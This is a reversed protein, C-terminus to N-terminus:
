AKEQYSIQSFWLLFVNTQMFAFCINNLLFPFFGFLVTPNSNGFSICSSKYSIGNSVSYNPRNVIYHVFWIWKHLYKVKYYCSTPKYDKNFHCKTLINWTWVQSFPVFCSSGDQHKYTVKTKVFCAGYIWTYNLMRFLGSVDFSLIWVIVYHINFPYLTLCAVNVLWGSRFVAAHTVVANFLKVMMADPDVLTHTGFVVPPEQQEQKKMDKYAQITSNSTDKNEQTFFLLYHFCASHKNASLCSLFYCISCTQM